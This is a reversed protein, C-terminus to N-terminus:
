SLRWRRPASWPSSRTSSRTVPRTRKAQAELWAQEEPSIETSGTEFKIVHPTSGKLGKPRKCDAAESIGTGLILVGAALAPMFFRFGQAVRM